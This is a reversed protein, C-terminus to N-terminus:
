LHISTIASTAIHTVVSAPDIGVLKPLLEILGVFGIMKEIRGFRREDSVAHDMAWKNFGDVKEEIRQLAEDHTTM